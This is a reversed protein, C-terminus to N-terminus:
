SVPETTSVSVVEWGVRMSSGMRIKSNDVWTMLKVGVPADAPATKFDAM